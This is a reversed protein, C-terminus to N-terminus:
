NKEGVTYNGTNLDDCKTALAKVRQAMKGARKSLKMCTHLVNQNSEGESERVSKGYRDFEKRGKPEKVM